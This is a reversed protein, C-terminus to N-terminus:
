KNGSLQSHLSSKYAEMAPFLSTIVSAVLVVGMAGWLQPTLINTTLFLGFEAALWGKLTVIGLALVVLAVVVAALTMLMSELMILLMIKAPGAGLVRLVAIEGKRERMSALLMTALGFLASILVLAAISRLVNEMTGVLQWLEALAVGPLVAMLRDQPYTNIQQQLRLTAFKSTLGLFVASLKDPALAIADPDDHLQELQHPPLHMAEVGRLSVHVTKDVPTGTANLIGSVIFPSQEHKHFSTHGIGHAVVLSDGVEYGLQRAVDAGIVAEFVTEFLKGDRFSLWRKDGYKFHEFYASTTGLVRFGRHADGLSVPIAWEVLESDSLMQYSDYKISNTPTGIRFVTYLLLNLQGSPAGVILDTDSITRNFSDKAQVRVTEVAFLVLMSITLSVLTLLVTKKRSLLSLRALTFLM